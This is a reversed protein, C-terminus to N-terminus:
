TIFIKNNLYLQLMVSNEFANLVIYIYIYVFIVVREM